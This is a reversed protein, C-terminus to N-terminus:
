PTQTDITLSISGTEEVPIDNQEAFWDGSQALPNGSPSIRAGITVSPFASLRMDPIMAMSDDLTVTTPLDSVSVRSVALPMPPGQSARAYIFVTNDGSAAAQAADCQLVPTGARQQM